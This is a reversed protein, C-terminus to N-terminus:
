VNGPLRSIFCIFSNCTFTVAGTPIKALAVARLSDSRYSFRPYRHSAHSFCLDLRRRTINAERRHRCPRQSFPRPVRTRSVVVTSTRDIPCCQPPRQNGPPPFEDRAAAIRFGVIVIDIHGRFGSILLIIM